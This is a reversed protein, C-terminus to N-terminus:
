GQAKIEKKESLLFEVFIQLKPKLQTLGQDIWNEPELRACFLLSLDFQGQTKKTSM